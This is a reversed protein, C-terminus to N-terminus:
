TSSRDGTTSRSLCEPELCVTVACELGAVVDTMTPRDHSELRVCSAAVEWIREVAEIEVPTPPPLRKDLVQRVDGGETPLDVVNRPARAEEDWHIARLGTLLELLVVGFSYVDSKMTLRRMRYYEPDMYGVTGEARADVDAGGGFRSLGFDTVKADWDLGLLINSSKIDRHVVPPMAYAHLYEVGRAADLAVRMRAAWSDLPGARGRFLHDHLSGNAVYEYVLVREAGDSCHGFLRVLNKHNLRSLSALESVFDDRERGPGRHLISAPRAPEARKLAVARGDSLVARYVGGFNGTGIRHAESFGDTAGSLEELKFEKLKGGHGMGLMNELWPGGHRGSDHVRRKNEKRPGFLVFALLAGLLCSVVGVTGVIILTLRMRPGARNRKPSAHAPRALKCLLCVVGNDGCVSGSDSLMGCSCDSAPRCPGPLVRAFVAEAADDHRGWCALSFDATVVGCFVQGRGGISAFETSGLRGPLRFGRAGWCAATSDERLACTRDEGLALAVYKGEAAPGNVTGAPGDGWCALKGAASVACAHRTGAGLLAYNGEPVRATVGASPGTCTVTGNEALGCLFDRGVSLASLKSGKVPGRAADPWRWCVVTGTGTDLGCVQDDGASLVSLGPGRYVRKAPGVTGDRSFEWCLMTTADATLGCLFGNGAAIAWYPM